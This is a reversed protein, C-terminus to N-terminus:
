FYTYTQGIEPQDPLRSYFERTGFLFSEIQLAEAILKRWNQNSTHIAEGFEHFNMEQRSETLKSTYDLSRIM